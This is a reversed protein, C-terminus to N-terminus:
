HLAELMIKHCKMARSYNKGKMVGNLSGSSILNSELLIDSLGCGDMKKGIMNLYGLMLHFLGIMVIHRSFKDPFNWLLPFAKMCVGLDLTTFVFKQGVEDTAQEAMRLCEQVTSYETIPHFVVPYYDISTLCAPIKGTMSVFGSWNPIIPKGETSKRLVIWALDKM